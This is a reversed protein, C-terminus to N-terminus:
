RPLKVTLNIPARQNYEIKWHYSDRGLLMAPSLTGNHAAVPLDARITVNIAPDYGIQRLQTVDKPTITASRIGLTHDKLNPLVTIMKADGIFAFSQGAKRFAKYDVTVRSFGAPTVSLFETDKSLSKLADSIGQM